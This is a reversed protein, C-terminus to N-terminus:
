HSHVDIERKQFASLVDTALALYEVECQILDAVRRVYSAALSPWASDFILAITPNESACLGDKRSARYILTQM